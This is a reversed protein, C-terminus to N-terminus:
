NLYLVYVVNLLLLYSILGYLFLIHKQYINNLEDYKNKKIIKNLLMLELNKYINNKQNEKTIKNMLVLELKQIFMKHNYINEKQQIIKNLVVFDLYNKNIDIDETTTNKDEKEVKNINCYNNNEVCELFYSYM